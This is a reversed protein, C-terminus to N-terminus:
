DNSLVVGHADGQSDVDAGRAWLGQHYVICFKNHNYAILKCSCFLVQTKVDSHVKKNHKQQLIEQWNYRVTLRKM